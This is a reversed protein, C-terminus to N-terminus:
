NQSPTEIELDIGAVPKHPGVKEGNIHEEPRFYKLSLIKRKSVFGISRRQQLRPVRFRQKWEFLEGTRV